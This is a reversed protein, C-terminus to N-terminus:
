FDENTVYRDIYICPFIIKKAKKEKEKKRIERSILTLPRNRITTTSVVVHSGKISIRKSREIKKRIQFSFIKKKRKHM